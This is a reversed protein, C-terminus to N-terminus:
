LHNLRIIRQEWTQAGVLRKKGDPFAELHFICSLQRQCYHQHVYISILTLPEAELHQLTVREAKVM